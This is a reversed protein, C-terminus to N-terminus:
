KKSDRISGMNMIMIIQIINIIMMIMLYERITEKVVFVSPSIHAGFIRRYYFM